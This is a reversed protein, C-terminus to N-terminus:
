RDNAAIRLQTRLESNERALKEVKATMLHLELQIQHASTESHAYEVSTSPSQMSRNM